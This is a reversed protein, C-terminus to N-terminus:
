RGGPVVQPRRGMPAVRRPSRCCFSRGPGLTINDGARLDDPSMAPTPGGRPAPCWGFRPLVTCTGHGAPRHGPRAPGSRRLRGRGRHVPSRYVIPVCRAPPHPLAVPVLPCSVTPPFRLDALWRLRQWGSSSSAPLLELRGVREPWVEPGRRRAPPRAMPEVLPQTPPADNRTTVTATRTFVSVAAKRVPRYQKAMGPAVRMRPSCGYCGGGSGAGAASHAPGGDCAWPSAKRRLALQCVLAALRRCTLPRGPRRCAPPRRPTTVAEPRWRGSATPPRGPAARPQNKPRSSWRARGAFSGFVCTWTGSGV